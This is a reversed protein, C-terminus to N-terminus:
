QEGSQASSIHKFALVKRISKPVDKYKAKGSEYDNVWKAHKHGSLVVEEEFVTYSPNEPKRIVICKPYDKFMYPGAFDSKENYFKERVIKWREDVQKEKPDAYKYIAEVVEIGASNAYSEIYGAYWPTNEEFVFLKGGPKLVRGLEWLGWRRVDEINSDGPGTFQGFVSRMLAVDVTDDRLPLAHMNGGVYLPGEDKAGNARVDNEDVFVHPLDFAIFNVDRDEYISGKEYLSTRDGCGLELVSLPVDKPLAEPELPGSESLELSM